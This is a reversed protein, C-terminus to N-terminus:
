RSWSPGADDGRSMKLSEEMARRLEEDDDDNENEAPFREKGKANQRRFEEEALSQKKVYELVIEEETRQSMEQQMAEKSAEIARQMEEEEDANAPPAADHRSEEIARQLEADDDADRPAAPEEMRSETLARQLEDDERDVMVPPPGPPPPPLVTTDMSDLEVFGLEQPLPADTLLSQKIAQEVLDQYEQDTIRYEDDDFINMNKEPLPGATDTSQVKDRVARISERIAAEVMADDEANGNSTEQVSAQIARELEVDESALSDTSETTPVKVDVYGSKWAERQSQLRKREEFSLRRTQFWGTAPPELGDNDASTPRSAPLKGATREKRKLMHFNKLDYKCNNWRLLIDEREGPTSAQMEQQGQIARSSIIYNQVSKTFYKNIEAHVGQM